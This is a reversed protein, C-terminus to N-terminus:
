RVALPGLVDIEPDSALVSAFTALELRRFAGGSSENVGIQRAAIAERLTKLAHRRQGLPGDSPDLTTEPHVKKGWLEVEFTRGSKPEYIGYLYLGVEPPPIKGFRQELTLVFTEAYRSAGAPSALEDRSREVIREHVYGQLVTQLRDAFPQTRARGQSAALAEDVATTLDESAFIRPDVARNVCFGEIGAAALARTSEDYGSLAAEITGTGMDGLM